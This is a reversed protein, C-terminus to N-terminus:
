IRGPRTHFIIQSDFAGAKEAHEVKMEVRGSLWKPGTKRRSRLGAVKRVGDAVDPAKFNELQPVQLCRIRSHRNPSAESARFKGDLCILNKRGVLIRGLVWLVM